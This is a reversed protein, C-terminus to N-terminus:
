FPLDNNNEAQEEKEIEEVDKMIENIQAIKKKILNLYKKPTKSNNLYQKLQNLTYSNINKYNFNEPTGNQNTIYEIDKNSNKNKEIYGYKILNNIIKIFTPQSIGLIKYTQNISFHINEFNLIILFAGKEQITIRKDNIFDKTLVIYNNLIPKKHILNIKQQTSKM